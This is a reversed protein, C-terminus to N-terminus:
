TEFAWEAYWERITELPMECIEATENMTFGLNSINRAVAKKGILEGEIKGEIKGEIRGAKKGENVAIEREEETLLEIECLM